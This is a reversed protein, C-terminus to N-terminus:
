YKNTLNIRKKKNDILYFKGGSIDKGISGIKKSAYKPHLISMRATAETQGYMSYFKLKNKKSFNVIKSFLNDNLKGGAQCISKLKPSILKEFKLKSIIEFMYPVGYFFSPKHEKYLM